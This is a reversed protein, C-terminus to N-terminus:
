NMFGPRWFGSWKYTIEGAYLSKFRVYDSM